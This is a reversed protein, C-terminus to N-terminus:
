SQRWGPINCSILNPVDEQRVNARIKALCPKCGIVATAICINQAYSGVGLFAMRLIQIVKKCRIVEDGIIEFRALAGLHRTAIDVTQQVVFEVKGVQRRLKAYRANHRTATM